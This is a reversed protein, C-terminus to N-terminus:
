HMDRAIRQRLKEALGLEKQYDALLESREHVRVWMTNGFERDNGIAPVDPREPTGASGGIVIKKLLYPAVLTILSERESAEKAKISEYQGYYDFLDNKLKFDHIVRLNGSSRLDSFAADHAFFSPRRAIDRIGEDLQAASIPTSARSADLLSQAKRVVLQTEPIVEHLAGIDSALNDSLTKLYLQELEDEHRTEKWQDLGFSISISFVIVFIEILYEPWRHRLAALVPGGPRQRSPTEM